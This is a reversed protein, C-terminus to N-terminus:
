GRMGGIITPRRQLGMILSHIAAAERSKSEVKSKSPKKFCRMHYSGNSVKPLPQECFKCFGYKSSHQTYTETPM